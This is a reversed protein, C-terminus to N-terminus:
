DEMETESREDTQDMQLQMTRVVVTPVLSPPVSPPPPIIPNWNWTPLMWPRYGLPAVPIRAQPFSRSVEVLPVPQPTVVPPPSVEELGYQQVEPYIFNTLREGVAGEVQQGVGGTMGSSAAQQGLGDVELRVKERGRDDFRVDIDRPRGRPFLHPYKAFVGSHVFFDNEWRGKVVSKGFFM